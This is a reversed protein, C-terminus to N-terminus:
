AMIEAVPRRLSKPMPPAYGYRVVLDPRRGLGLWKAFEARVEPVEVPQNVFANRVGLATAQLAFRQYSRGVSVWGAKGEERAVFIAIGPSSRIQRSYRDNESGASFIWPFILRGLWAPSTPNGSAASYLGDRTEAADAANFRLWQTLEAVFAPDEVQRTNGSVVYDLVAAMRSPDAIMVIDVGDVRAAEEIQALDAAPVPRGDFESRTCQREPIAVFLPTEAAPGPELAIAVSGNGAPDFGVTARRGRAEAAISLNEAACGLSVFLHHDDPDVVPTRRAFDPLITVANETAAFRWPQTNHSNAALTAYRVLEAMGADAALTAWTEAAAEDWPSSGGGCGAVPLALAAAGSVMLGRRSMM